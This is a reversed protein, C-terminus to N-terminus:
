PETPETRTGTKMEPSRTLVARDIRGALYAGRLFDPDYGALACVHRFWKGGSRIWADAAAREARPAGPNNGDKRLATADLIATHVVTQWLLRAGSGDYTM